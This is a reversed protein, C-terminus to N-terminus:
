RSLLLKGVQKYSGQKMKLMYVGSGLSRGATDKTEMNVMNLGEKMASFTKTSVKQGHLNYLELEAAGAAPLNCIVNINGGCPSYGRSM